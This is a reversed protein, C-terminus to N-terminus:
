NKFFKKFITKIPPIAMITLIITKFINNPTRNNNGTQTNQINLLENEIVERIQSITPLQAALQTAQKNTKNKIKQFIIFMILAIAVAIATLFIYFYPNNDPEKLIEIKDISTILDELIETPNKKNTKIYETVNKIYRSRIDDMATNQRINTLNISEVNTSNAENEIQQINQMTNNYITEINNTLDQIGQVEERLIRTAMNVIEEADSQTLDSESDSIQYNIFDTRSDLQNRPQSYLSRNINTITENFQSIEQNNQIYEQNTNTSATSQSNTTSITKDTNNVKKM